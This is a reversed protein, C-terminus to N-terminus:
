RARGRRGLAIHVILLPALVLGILWHAVSVPPRTLDDVIYYLAYGTLILLAFAGIMLSGSARNRKLIWGQRAHAAGMSGLALLAAMVAAGHVKLALAERGIRDLESASSPTFADVYHIGLWWLGSAVLVAIVLYLARRSATGLKVREALLEYAREHSRSL